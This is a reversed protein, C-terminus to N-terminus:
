SAKPFGMVSWWRLCKIVSVGCGNSAPPTTLHYSEPQIHVQQMDGEIFPLKTLVHFMLEQGKFVTYVSQSGTQGNRVDLGGRFSASFLFNLWVDSAEPWKKWFFWKDDIYLVSHVIILIEQNQCLQYYPTTLLLVDFMKMQSKKRKRRLQFIRSNQAVTSLHANM